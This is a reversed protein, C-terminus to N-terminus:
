PTTLSESCDPANDWRYLQICPEPSPADHDCQDVSIFSSEQGPQCPNIVIMTSKRRELEELLDKLPDYDTFVANLMLRYIM